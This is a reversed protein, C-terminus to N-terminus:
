GQAGGRPPGESVPLLRLRRGRLDLLVLAAPTDGPALAGAPVATPQGPALPVPVGGLLVTAGPPGAEHLLTAAGDAGWRLRVRHPGAAYAQDAGAGGAGDAAALRLPAEELPSEDVFRGARHDEEALAAAARRLRAEAAVAGFLRAAPDDALAPDALLLEWGTPRPPPSM